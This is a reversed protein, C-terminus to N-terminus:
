FARTSMNFTYGSFYDNWSIISIPTTLYLLGVGSCDFGNLSKLIEQVMVLSRVKNDNLDIKTNHVIIQFSILLESVYLNEPNIRPIFFRLETRVADLIKNTFPYKYIRQQTITDVRLGCLNIIEEIPIDIQSLANADDYKILKLLNQNETLKNGVNSLIQGVNELTILESM